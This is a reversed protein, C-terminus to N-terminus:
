GYRKLNVRSRRTFLAKQFQRCRVADITQFGRLFTGAAKESNGCMEQPGRRVEAAEFTEVKPATAKEVRGHRVCGDLGKNTDTTSKRRV